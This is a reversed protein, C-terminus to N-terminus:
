EVIEPVPIPVPKGNNIKSVRNQRYLSRITAYLDLSSKELDELEEISRSRSDVLSVATTSGSALRYEWGSPSIYTRPDILRDGVRGAVHRANHPGLLPLMVYPGRKVGWVALTQGFDEKHAVLGYQGAVDFFGFFGAVTNVFFRMATEAARGSEGQLVDNIFTQPSDIHNLFNRISTRAFAPINRRYAKAVPKLVARDLAFNFDFVKRNWPELPDNTEHYAQLAEPNKPVPACAGVAVLAAVLVGWRVFRGAGRRLGGVSSSLDNM